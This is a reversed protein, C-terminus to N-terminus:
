RSRAEFEGRVGDREREGWEVRKIWGARTREVHRRDTAEDGMALEEWSRRRLSRRTTSDIIERRVAEWDSSAWCAPMLWGVTERM